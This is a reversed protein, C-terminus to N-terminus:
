RHSESRPGPSLLSFPRFTIMELKTFTVRSAARKPMVTFHAFTYEQEYDSLAAMGDMPLVVTYNLERAATTATHLVCINSRYGTFVLTDVGRSSLFAQLEGGTFKDFGDPYFVPETARPALGAYVEGETTGKKAFSVTYAIPVHFKRAEDLLKRVGPAIRHCPLEPDGWRRSGDLVLVATRKADLIAPEPQPIRKVAKDM